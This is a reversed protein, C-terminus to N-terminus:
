FSYEDGTALVLVRERDNHRHRDVTGGNWATDIEVRVESPTGPLRVRLRIPRAVAKAALAGVRCLMVRAGSRVCGAPLSQRNVPAVSWRLRVTADPVASPGYNRPTLRLDVRGGVMSVVGHYALDAEPAGVAGGPLAVALVVGVAAAGVVPVRMRRM